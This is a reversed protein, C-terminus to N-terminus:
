WRFIRPTLLTKADIEDLFDAHEWGKMWQYIVFGILCLGGLVFLAGFLHAYSGYEITEMRRYRRGSSSYIQGTVLPMIGVVFLWASLLPMIIRAAWIKATAEPVAHWYLGARPDPVNLVQLSGAGPIPQLNAIYPGIIRAHVTEGIQVSEYEQKDAIFDEVTGNNFAIRVVGGTKRPIKHVVTVGAAFRQLVMPEWGLHLALQSLLSLVFLTSFTLTLVDLGRNWNEVYGYDLRWPEPINGEGHNILQRLMLTIALIWGVLIIVFTFPSRARLM